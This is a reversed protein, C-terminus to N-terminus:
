TRLSQHTQVPVFRTFYTTIVSMTQRFCFYFFYQRDINHLPYKFMVNFDSPIIIEYM